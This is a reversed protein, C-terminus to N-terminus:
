VLYLNFVSDSSDGDTETALRDCARHYVLKLTCPSLLVFMCLTYQIHLLTLGSICLVIICKEDFVSLIHGTYASM